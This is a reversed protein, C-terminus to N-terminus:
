SERRDPDRRRGRQSPDGNRAEGDQGGGAAELGALPAGAPDFRIGPEGGRSSGVIVDPQHHDCESQAARVAEDFDDDDLAPNIVQHGHDALYTPKVGGPVSHWGHLLLIKM